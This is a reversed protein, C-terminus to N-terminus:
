DFIDEIVRDMILEAWSSCRSQNFDEMIRRDMGLTFVKPIDWYKIAPERKYYYPLGGYRNQECDWRGIKIREKHPPLYNHVYSMVVQSGYDPMRDQWHRLRPFWEDSAWIPLPDTDDTFICTYDEVGSFIAHSMRGLRWGRDDKLRVGWYISSDVMLKKVKALETPNCGRKFILPATFGRGLVLTDTEFCFAVLPLNNM